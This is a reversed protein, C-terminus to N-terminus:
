RVNSWNFETGGLAPDEEFRSIGQPNDSKAFHLPGSSKMGIANLTTGSQEFFNGNHGCDTCLPAAEVGMPGRRKFYNSGGCGPCKGSSGVSSPAKADYGQSRVRNYTTDGNGESQDWETV